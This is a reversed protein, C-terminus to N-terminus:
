KRVGRVQGRLQLMARSPRRRINEKDGLAPSLAHWSGLGQGGGVPEM